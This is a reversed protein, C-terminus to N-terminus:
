AHCNVGKLKNQKGYEECSFGSKKGTYLYLKNRLTRVNVGLSKAAMSRNDYNDRLARFILQKEIRPWLDEEESADFTGLLDDEHELDYDIKQIRKEEFKKDTALEIDEKLAELSLLDLRRVTSKQLFHIREFFAECVSSIKVKSECKNFIERLDYVTCAEDIQSLCHKM